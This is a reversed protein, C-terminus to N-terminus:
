ATPGERTCSTASRLTGGHSGIRPYTRRWRCARPELLHTTFDITAFDARSTRKITPTIAAQVGVGGTAVWPVTDTRTTSATSPETRDLTPILTQGLV